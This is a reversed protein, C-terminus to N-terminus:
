KLIGSKHLLTWNRTWNNSGVAGKFTVIDFGNPLTAMNDSVGNFPILNHPATSSIGPNYITNSGGTFHMKFSVQAASFDASIDTYVDFMNDEINAAVDYFINNNLLLRGNEYQAYSDNVGNEYNVEVGRTQNLFISNYIRGGASSNFIVCEKNLAAGQGIFTGNAIIPMTIPKNERDNVEIMTTGFNPEQIGVIFQINGNYGKEIDFLDDGCFAAVLYKCNVTGGFIEIGDDQCSIVEIYEIVTKNGVGGLTLGNVDNIDSLRTGGHRISVYKLIGSDDDNTLGGYLARTETNPIGEIYDEGSATNIKAKGLIYIGGWLGSTKPTVSGSLDDKEATFIIPENETGEAIIRGGRAVILASADEGQGEKFRIVAGPEITLTQGDNVYVRGDILYNVGKAWVADGTGSGNDIIVTPGEPIKYDSKRCGSVMVLTACIIYLISKKM